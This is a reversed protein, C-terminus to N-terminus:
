ELPRAVVGLHDEHYPDLRETDLVEYHDELEAVVEDFV